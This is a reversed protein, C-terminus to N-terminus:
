FMPFIRGTQTKYFLYAEGFTDKMMQEEKPVRIFYLVSWSVIGALGVFWNSTIFLQAIIMIWIQTYMPHRIRKYPWEKILTRGTRIQLVPSWNKGLAKHVEYFLRLSLVAAVTGGIRAYSPLRINAWHFVDSVIWATPIAIMGVAATLV